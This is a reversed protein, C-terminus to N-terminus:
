GKDIIGKGIVNMYTHNGMLIPPTHCPDFSSFMSQSSAMHHSARSDLLWKRSYQSSNAVLSQVKGM